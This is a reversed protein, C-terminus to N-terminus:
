HLSVQKNGQVLWQGKNSSNMAHNVAVAVDNSHVPNFSVNESLFGRPISGSAVCQAMYHILGTPGDAFVLSTSLLSMNPNFHLAQQEAESRVEVWSKTANETYALDHEVPLVAVANKVGHKKTLKASGVLFDNKDPCMSTYNHTFYVVNEAGELALDLAAGNATLHKEVTIGQSTLERQYDYV